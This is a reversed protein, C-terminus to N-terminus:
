VLSIRLSRKGITLKKEIREVLHKTWEICFKSNFFFYIYKVTFIQIYCTLPQDKFRSM